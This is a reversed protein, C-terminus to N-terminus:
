MGEFDALSNDSEKIKGLTARLGSDLHLDSCSMSSSCHVWHRRGEEPDLMYIMRAPHSVYSFVELRDTPIMDADKGARKFIDLLARPAKANASPRTAYVSYPAIHRSYRDGMECM